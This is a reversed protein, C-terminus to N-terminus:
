QGVRGVAQVVSADDDHDREERDSLGDLDRRLTSLSVHLASALQQLTVAGHRHLFDVIRQRRQAPLLPTATLPVNLLESM